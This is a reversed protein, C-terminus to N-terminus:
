LAYYRGRCAAFRLDDHCFSKVIGVAFHFKEFGADSGALLYVVAPRDRKVSRGKEGLAAALRAVASIYTIRKDPIRLLFRPLDYM